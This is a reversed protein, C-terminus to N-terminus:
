ENRGGFEILPSLLTRTIGWGIRKRRIGGACEPCWRRQDATDESFVSHRPCLPMRCKACWGLCRACVTGEYGSETCRACFGAPPGVCGCSSVTLLEETESGIGGGEHLIHLVDEQGSLVKNRNWPNQAITRKRQGRIPKM